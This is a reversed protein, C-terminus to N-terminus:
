KKEVNWFTLVPGPVFGSVNSRRAYPQDFQGLLRYPQVETLRRHLAVVAKQQAEPGIAEVYANRLREAEADCPWGAWARDCAMNTGINTIPSQMTAASAFTVFLNWGGQDPPDKKPQRSTVTGWDQFQVDVNMGGEKLNAAAVEAMRGIAPIDNTTILVVKEGKYGAEALLQKARAVNPKAYAESGAETGNPSGCVFYSGCTKWWKEDGVGAALADEQNVLYAMALRARPDNFPPFLHNPRLMAQNTTYKDVVIGRAGQLMPLLDQAPQEWVDIEGTQLASAATAPDPMIHWEVRDVKVVRGGALGDPPEARPVYDPNRDYVVLAGPRWAEKNFRFPGSGIATTVPTTPDTKADAERMIAPIQGVASGLMFPVSGTPRNLKLTFSRDDVVDLSATYERLKAGATDRAMWRNLSAVVDRSTVPQGDHFTLGDRLHFSWTLNDASTEFRDVMQPKPQLQSDWSFLTEYIMTGHIRTILISAVVPDLTRLDAHPAVRLVKDPAPQARAPLASPLSLALPAAALLAAARRSLTM